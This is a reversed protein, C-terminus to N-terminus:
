PERIGFELKWRRAKDPTECWLELVGLETVRTLFRVPVYDEDPMGPERQLTTEMSDTEQLETELTAADLLMGPRDDKRSTSSFIRFRAPEGVVLGIEGTADAPVDNETGEEMGIPAICLGKLPRSAGPIALGATEIGVYYARATGGRIRLGGRLKSWGYFAAGRAVAHDLDIGTDLPQPPREPIWDALVEALRGALRPSKFVGGNLLLHTPRAAHKELFAALHKTIGTEQEFPLGLERFGTMMGRRPKGEPGCRPLFGELLMEATADRELELSVTGGILKRGRGLVSVTYQESGTEEALLAEKANRCSHWLAVSQWPDLTTGQGALRSAVEHALALDMNDGGVLLHDGVALRELVLDGADESVGILTLDTTGGGVDCVLLTDGLTLTKRWADGTNALWAYLAAQPEELFLLREERIGSALAAERTLERAGADFSAPVTLVVQQRDLPDEPFAANWCGALHELYLRTATLPSVKEVEPPANWPLIAARRDVRNHCLWSKAAGVVREPQEASRRRAWEGVSYPREAEAGIYLFSPLTDRAQRTEAAVDQSLPLLEPKTGPEADLPLYALVCNTTGLDIGIVYKM